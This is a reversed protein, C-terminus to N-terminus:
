STAGAVSFDLGLIKQLDFQSMRWGCPANINFIYENILRTISLTQIGSVKVLRGVGDAVDGIHPRAIAPVEPRLTPLPARRQAWARESRSPHRTPVSRKGV